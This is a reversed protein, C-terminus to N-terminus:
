TTDATTSLTSSGKSAPMLKRVAAEATAGIEEWGTRANKLSSFDLAPGSRVTIRCFRPRKADPPFSEYTGELHCPVVAIESEAVLMGLGPKFHGMLGDRSRTGEPFLVYACHEEVLRQRLEKLGHHTCKKRWIPLTNVIGAAFAAKIPSEFFTDGAAVPFVRDQIRAPMISALVLADLHSSHNAVLIFPMQKPLHERGLVALRHFVALYSRVGAWWALHAGAQFLGSERRLSKFREHPTLGLDRAPQLKWDDV